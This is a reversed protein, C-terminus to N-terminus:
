CVVPSWLLWCQPSVQPDGERTGKQTLFLCCSGKGCFTKAVLSNGADQSAAMGGPLSNPILLTPFFAMLYLEGVLALARECAPFGQLPSVANGGGGEM